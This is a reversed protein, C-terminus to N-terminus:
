ICKKFFIIVHSENKLVNISNDTAYMHGSVCVCVCAFLCQHTFYAPILYKKEHVIPRGHSTDM